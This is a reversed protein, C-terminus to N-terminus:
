VFDIYAFTKEERAVGSRLGHVEALIDAFDQFDDFNRIFSATRKDDLNWHFANSGTDRRSHFIIICGSAPYWAIGCGAEIKGPKGTNDLFDKVANEQQTKPNM